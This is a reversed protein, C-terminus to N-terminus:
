RRFVRDDQSPQPRNGLPLQIRIPPLSWEAPPLPTLPGQGAETRDQREPRDVPAVDTRGALDTRGHPGHDHGAEIHYRHLSQVYPDVAALMKPPLLPTAHEIVWAAACGSHSSQVLRAAQPSLGVSFVIALLLFLAGKAAGLISGLHRDYEDLKFKEITQRVSSALMYVAFSVALYILLMALVHSFPESSGLHPALQPAFECAGVYGLVLAAIPAIQWAAGRRAGRYAALLIALVVAIDLIPLTMMM